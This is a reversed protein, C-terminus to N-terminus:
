YYYYNIITLVVVELKAKSLFVEPFQPPVQKSHSHLLQSWSNTDMNGTAQLLRDCFAERGKLPTLLQTKWILNDRVCKEASALLNWFDGSPCSAVARSIANLAAAALEPSGKPNEMRESTYIVCRKIDEDCGIALGKELAKGLSTSAKTQAEKACAELKTAETASHICGGETTRTEADLACTQTEADLTFTTTQQRDYLDRGQRDYWYWDDHWQREIGSHQRDYWGLWDATAPWWAQAQHGAM